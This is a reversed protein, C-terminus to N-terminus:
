FDLFSTEIILRTDLFLLLLGLSSLSTPFSHSFKGLLHDRCLIPGDWITKGGYVFEDEEM